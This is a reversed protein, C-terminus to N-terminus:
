QTVQFSLASPHKKDHYLKQKQVIIRTATAIPDITGLNRAFMPFATSRMVLALRHGKMFTHATDWIRISAEYIEGPKLARQKELGKVYSCRVKGAQAFGHYAGKEDIDVLNAYFDTDFASTSYHLNLVIPGSISLSSKLPDTKFIVL